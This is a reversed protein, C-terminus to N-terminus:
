YELYKEQRRYYELVGNALAQASREYNGPMVTWQFEENCSIFSMECLTSPFRHNRAVALAQYSTQRQYRSLEYTVTDSVSNALLVGADDSYLGIYGRAKSANVTNVVSNHHVSIMFDPIIGALFEIREQLTVTSDDERIMVVTAGLAELKNKLELTIALNLDAENFGSGYETPGQAGKDEGGHGADLVVKKGELPKDSDKVSQPNHLKVTIFGGEYVVNYGYYNEMARFTFDYVARGSDDVYGVGSSIM